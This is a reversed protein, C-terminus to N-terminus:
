AEITGTVKASTSFTGEDYEQCAANIRFGAKGALSGIYAVYEAFIDYYEATVEGSTITHMEILRMNSNTNSVGASVPLSCHTAIIQDAAAGSGLPIRLFESSIDCTLSEATDIINATFSAASPPTTQAAADGANTRNVNIKIYAQAGTLTISNGLRDLIPNNDAYTQWATRQEQTLDRWAASKLSLLNRQAQQKSTSPNTPVVWNKFYAGGKNRSYVTGGIKGSAQSVGGGFAIKAM